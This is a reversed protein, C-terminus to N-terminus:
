RTEEASAPDSEPNGPRRVELTLGEVGAIEVREGASLDRDGRASWREGFARVHGEGASWDAVEAPAGVMAAAGTRAEKRLSRWVAGAVVTVILLSLAAVAFILGTSIQYAAIDTDVLMVAGISFAAAGGLGLVGFSPTIAEATMLALGLGILALGAYDIPLLNLSYLGLLLCIVGPIGPGLGPSSLEFIIGYFGITMLLLAVNPNSLIGLLETVLSPEVTEVRAGATALTVDAEGITLAHGDLAALLADIDAAVFEIVDRELAAKASLSAADRVASEAWEANRGRLEALSRIQAVADNIAKNSLKGQNTAPTGASGGDEADAAEGAAGDGSTGETSGNEGSGNKGDKGDGGGGPDGGPLGPPGGGGMQVPTAAGLNTGPAMAAVHSAYLIYTGASAARAGSPAVFVAVPVAAALITKNIERTSTSLGGPTDMRLVVLEAGRETGTDILESIQRAAPPGIVGSIDGVLVLPGGRESPADDAALAALGLGAVLLGALLRAGSRALNQFAGRM